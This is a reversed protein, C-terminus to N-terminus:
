FVERGRYYTSSAFKSKKGTKKRTTSLNSSTSSLKHTPCSVSSPSRTTSKKFIALPNPYSFIPFSEQQMKTTLVAFRGSLLHFSVRLLAMSRNLASLLITELRWKPVLAHPPILLLCPTTWNRPQPTTYHPQVIHSSQKRHLANISDLQNM